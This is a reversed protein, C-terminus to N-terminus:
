VVSQLSIPVMGFFFSCQFATEVCSIKVGKPSRFRERKKHSKQCSKLTVKLHGAIVGHSQSTRGYIYVLDIMVKLANRGKTTIMM